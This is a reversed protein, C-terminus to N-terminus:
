LNCGVLCHSRLSCARCHSIQPTLPCNASMGFHCLAFDYRIPDDADIMRLSATVEEVTRWSLDRRRTFNLQRAIRAVHTDLPARLESADLENWIGFDIADPGRVMWRLFLTMRKAVGGQGMPLLHALGRTKGIHREVETEPAMSRILSAFQAMALRWDRHQRFIQVFANEISGYKQLAAGLGLLLVAM